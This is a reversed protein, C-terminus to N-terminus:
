DALQELIAIRDFAASLRMIRDDEIEFFMGAQLTLKQGRASPGDAGYREDDDIYEARLVFEAAARHGSPDSLIVLGDYETRYCRMRHIIYREFPEWGIERNGYPTDHIIDESLCDMTGAIDRVALSSFFRAVLAETAVRDAM